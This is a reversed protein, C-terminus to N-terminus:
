LKITKKLNLSLRIRKIYAEYRVRKTDRMKQKSEETHNRGKNWAPKGKKAISINHRAEASKPKRMKRKANESHKYGTNAKSIKYKHEESLPRGKHWSTNGKNKEGIKRKAEESHKHGSMGEGGDTLNCLTGEKASRRGIYKIWYKEQRFAAEETLNKHLFYIKINTVGIKKIKRKLFSNYNHSNWAHKQIKYRDGCGKGIYFPTNDQDLYMYIYFKNVM